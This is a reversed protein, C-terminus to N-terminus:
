NKKVKPLEIAPKTKSVRFLVFRRGIVQVVESRSRESVIQAISRVDEFCNDLVAVKILERAELAEDVSAVVEATAGGKGIQVVPQMTAAQKRLFARQKSNM